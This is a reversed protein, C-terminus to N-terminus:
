HYFESKSGLVGKNFIRIRELELAGVVVELIRKDFDKVQHENLNWDHNKIAMKYTKYVHLAEIVRIPDVVNHFGVYQICNEAFQKIDNTEGLKFLYDNIDEVVPSVPFVKIGSKAYNENLEM